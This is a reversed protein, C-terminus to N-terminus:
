KFRAIDQFQKSKNRARSMIEDVDVILLKRDEMVLQGNIISHSVDNGRAAYVIHSYPNYMPTLHPKNTDVIIIDAKKGVEISGTIDELGLAKAGEITAMKLVTVADLVTPDMTEIKHLKAATDMETFLDLNNNSACGDTGLGVTVGSAILESVPSIGSALKMNSEPNDVAKVGHEVMRKIESEDIHVCHDAIFHPGLVGLSELHEFPRKNYKKRIESIESKTEAVHIILPVNYELALKNAAQLLDPSCTYTAHPEVAISVLPDDQWKKILEETYALGKEIPGYNPSLFDYLVEGVLCRMGTLRAAKAVEDEFLYMDCFTTTGSMIMEACALLTGTFVFDADMRSEAPFIYNNLWEMLPLDDALGRFLSMAAHTHANVLGPLILGGKANIIKDAEFTNEDDSCIHSITDGEICVLGRKLVSCKSDMTLITGNKIIIDFSYM